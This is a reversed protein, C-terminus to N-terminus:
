TALIDKVNPLQKAKLVNEKNKTNIGKATSAILSIHLISSYSYITHNFGLLVYALNLWSLEATLIVVQVVLHCM